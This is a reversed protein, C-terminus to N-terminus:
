QLAEKIRRGMDKFQQYYSKNYRSALVGNAILEGLLEDFAITGIVPIKRESCFAHGIDHESFYKNIVAGHPIHFLQVLEHILEVNHIGFITPEVVLVCYDCERISEMVTCSSGPPCDIVSVQNELLDELLRSVIPVGTAEGIHLRGTRLNLTEDHGYEIVGIERPVEKIAHQPCIMQCGGCAHCLEPFLLVKGKVYALANFQCFEVCKKCGNCKEIHVEPILTQVKEESDVPSGFFIHGNPEEIDCDIFTNAKLAYALNTAVFTKGAGGKGSLVGIKM